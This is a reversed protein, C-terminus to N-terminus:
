PQADYGAVRAQPILGQMPISYETHNVLYANLKQQLAPSDKGTRWRTGEDMSLAANSSVPLANIQLPQSALIEIKQQEISVVHEQTQDNQFSVSITQWLSVSVVAVTAAVAFGALPKLNAWHWFGPKKETIEVASSPPNATVEIEAIKSMIQHSLDLNIHDPLEHRLIDGIMQYRRMQYQLNVDGIVENLVSQSKPDDTYDDLVLSLKEDLENM